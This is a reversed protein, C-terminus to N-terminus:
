FLLVKQKLPNISNQISDEESKISDPTATQNSKNIILKIVQQQIKQLLQFDDHYESDEQELLKTILTGISRSPVLVSNEMCQIYYLLVIMQFQNGVDPDEKLQSQLELQHAQIRSKETKKDLGKLKIQSQDTVTQLGDLFDDVSQKNLLSVLKDLSKSNQSPLQSILATRQQPTDFTTTELLHYNANLEVLLNVIVNCSSKLLHKHLVTSSPELEDLGKKYVLLDSYLNHFQNILTQQAAKRSKMTENESKEKAEKVLDEWVKNIKPRLYQSLSQVLEEEMNEYWKSLLQLIDQYHDVSKQQQQKKLNNNSTTAITYEEDDSDDGRKKRGGSKKSKSSSKTPKIDQEDDSDDHKSRRGQSKKSSKSPKEDDSYDAQKSKQKGKSGSSSTTTTTTIPTSPTTPTSSSSDVLHEKPKVTVINQKELKEQISNKLLEYCRDIFTMSVIFYNNLLIAKSDDNSNSKMSPCLKVVMEIDKNTLPSPVLPSVDLWGVNEIIDVISDEVKDVITNNIYCTSLAIGNEKFTTKLYSQADSIQLKTLTEYSIYYNSNFFSEIWKARSQLFVTPTFEATTGKGQIIGAIRKSAVLESLQSFVLRDNLQYQKSLHSIIVPQTISSFLGMVKHKHRDIHAQTYIIEGDFIGHILRGIRKTIIESLFDVNIQFRNSLDNVQLKGAEQLSENIEEVISDLYYRTMIEGFYISITSDKKMLSQVSDQIYKIDVNLIPQLDTINVRGGSRMIEDKIESELQKFTLYEKGNLTHIVDVMKLEILKMMIEICNRESLKQATAEKQISSLKKRLAELEEM